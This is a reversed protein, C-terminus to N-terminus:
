RGGLFVSESIAQRLREYEEPLGISSFVSALQQTLHFAYTPRLSAIRHWYAQSFARSVSVVIEDEDVERVLRLYAVYGEDYGPGVTSLFITDSPLSLGNSLERRVEAECEDLTKKPQGLKRHVAMARIQAQLPKSRATCLQAFADIEATLRDASQGGAIGLRDMIASSDKQVLWERLRTDDIRHQDGDSAVTRSKHIGDALKVFLKEARRDLQQPLYFSEVYEALTIVPVYSLIGGHKSHAIDCDATIVIGVRAFPDTADRRAAIVDGQHLQQDRPAQVELMVGFRPMRLPVAASPTLTGLSVV